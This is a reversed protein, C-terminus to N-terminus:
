ELCCCLGGVPASPSDERLSTTRGREWITRRGLFGCSAKGFAPVVLPSYSPLLLTRLERLAGRPRLNAFESSLSLSAVNLLQQLWCLPRARIGPTALTGIPPHVPLHVGRRRGNTGRLQVLRCPLSRLIMSGSSPLSCRLSMAWSASERLSGDTGVTLRVSASM